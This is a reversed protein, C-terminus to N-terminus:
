KKKKKNERRLFDGLDIINLIINRTGYGIGLFEKKENEIIVYGQHIDQDISEKFIDRGCLFLWESKKDLTVKHEYNEGVIKILELSPYFKGKKEYGAFLGISFFSSSFDSSMSEIKEKLKEDVIFYGNRRKLLKDQIHNADFVKIFDKLSRFNPKTIKDNRKVRRRENNGSSRDRMAYENKPM